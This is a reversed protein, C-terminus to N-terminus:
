KEYCSIGEGCPFGNYIEIDDVLQKLPLKESYVTFLMIRDIPEKIKTKGKYDAIINGDVAWWFRGDNNTSRHWFFEVKFWKNEPVEVKKNDIQWYEKRTKFDVGNAVNDGHVHWYTENNDVYVYAAIRYDGSTKWEFFTCWGDDNTGDGLVSPLDAPLKLWYSVYLDGQEKADMLIYPDQTWSKDLKIIESSIVKTYEGTHGITTIIKNQIYEDSPVTSDVLVQFSANTDWINIPFEFGKTDSGKIDQFWTAGGDNYPIDIYVGDEFGSKFLLKVEEKNNSKSSDCSILLFISFFIIILYLQKM